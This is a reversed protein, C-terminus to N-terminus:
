RIGVIGDDVAVVDKFGYADKFLSLTYQNATWQLVSNDDLRSDAVIPLFSEGVNKDIVILKADVFQVCRDVVDPKLCINVGAGDGWVSPYYVGDLSRDMYGLHSLIYDVVNATIDYLCSYSKRTMIEGIYEMFEVEEQKFETKKADWMERIAKIEDCARPMNKPYPFAFTFIDDQTIWVSQTTIVKGKLNFDRLIDTTELASFIRPYGNETKAASTFVSGYFMPKNKLSTRDTRAFKAPPYNLRSVSKHFEFEDNTSSRLIKNGAPLMVPVIPTFSMSDLINILVSKDFANGRLMQEIIKVSEMM